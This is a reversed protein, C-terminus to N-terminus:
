GSTASDKIRKKLAELTAFTIEVAPNIGGFSRQTKAETAIEGVQQRTSKSFYNCTDDTRLQEGKGVAWLLKSQDVYKRIAAIAETRSLSKLKEYFKAISEFDQGDYLSDVLKSVFESEDGFASKRKHM